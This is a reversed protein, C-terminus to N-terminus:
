LVRCEGSFFKTKTLGHQCFSYYFYHNDKAFNEGRIQLKM